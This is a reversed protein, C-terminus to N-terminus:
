KEKRGAMEHVTGQKIILSGRDQENRGSGHLRSDKGVYCM